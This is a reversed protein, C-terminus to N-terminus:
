EKDIFATQMPPRKPNVLITILNVIVIKNLEQGKITDKILSNKVLLDNLLYKYFKRLM